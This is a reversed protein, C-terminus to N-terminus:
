QILGRRAQIGLGFLLNDLRDLAQRLALGGQDDGMLKCGNCVCIQDHDKGCASNHFGSTVPLQDFHPAM